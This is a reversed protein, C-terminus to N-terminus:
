GFCFHLHRGFFVGGLALKKMDVELWWATCVMMRANGMGRWRHMTWTRVTEIGDGDLDLAVVSILDSKNKM